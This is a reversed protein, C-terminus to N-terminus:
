SFFNATQLTQIQLHSMLINFNLKEGEEEYNFLTPIFEFLQEQLKNTCINNKDLDKFKEQFNNFTIIENM